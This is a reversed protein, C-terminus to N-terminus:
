RERRILLYGFDTLLPDGLKGAPLLAAMEIAPPLGPAGRLVWGLDGQRAKGGPDDNFEGALAALDEGKAAREALADVIERARKQDPAKLMDAGKALDYQVLIARLRVWRNERLSPDVQDSNVRKLVHYGLPTRLPQSIAGPALEFAALKLQQDDSGRQYIAFQGGRAKSQADDSFERALAAFDGGASLRALLQALRARPQAEDNPDPVDIRIQLVAVESEIRQLVNWGAPTAIPGSVAGPAAAFLFEDLHPDLMGPAFSGLVGGKSANRADSHERVLAGFDEGARARKELEAALEEAQARTRKTGPPANRAGEHAVLIARAARLEPPAEGLYMPKVLLSTQLLLLALIM